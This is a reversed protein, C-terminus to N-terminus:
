GLSVECGLVVGTRGGRFGGRVRHVSSWAGRVLVRSSFVGEMRAVSPSARSTGLVADIASVLLLFWGFRTSRPCCSCSGGLGPQDRVACAFGADM